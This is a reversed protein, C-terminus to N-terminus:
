TNMLDFVHKLQERRQDMVEPILRIADDFSCWVLDSIEGEDNVRNEIVDANLLCVYYQYMWGNFNEVPLKIDCVAGINRAFALKLFFFKM